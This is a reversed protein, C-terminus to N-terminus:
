YSVPAISLSFCFSALLAAVIAFSNRRHAALGSWRCINQFTEVSHFFFSAYLLALIRIHGWYWNYSSTPAVIGTMPAVMHHAGLTPLVGACEHVCSKLEKKLYWLMPSALEGREMAVYCAHAHVAPSSICISSLVVFLWMWRAYLDSLSLEELSTWMSEGVGWEGGGEWGWFFLLM